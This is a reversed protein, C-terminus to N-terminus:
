AGPARHAAVAPSFDEAVVGAVRQGSGPGLTWGLTGHGTNLYLGPIATRGLYPVNSPTTPRLGTWATAAEFDGADPFLDRSISRLVAVRRPDLNRDFGALEATGAVRLREGLRTYVVKHEDDTLSVRPAAGGTLPITLSYGKAPYLNLKVGLPRVLDRSWAAAAVVVARTPLSAYGGHELSKVEVQAIRRGGGDLRLATAETRWAFRVGRRLCLKALEATFAQADGSEDGETYTGGVIHRRAGALAPEIEVVRATDVVERVCGFERMLRAAEIGHAFATKDRYFHLIGRMEQDYELREEARIAQICARSALAMEVLKGTNARSRAPLCQGLWAALWRWQVPDFRPRFLLPSDARMMWKLVKLPADPTAWPEAYSVSVQGGNAFSTELGPGGLRDIVLTDIGQKNLYYATAVGVIGAGLVIVESPAAQLQHM